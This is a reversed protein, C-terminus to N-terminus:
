RNVEIYFRYNEGLIKSIYDLSINKAAEIKRVSIVDNEIEPNLIFKVPESNNAILIDDDNLINSYIRIEDIVGHFSNEGNYDSGVSLPGSNEPIPSNYNTQNFLIGDIYIKHNFGDSSFVIHYWKNTELSFSMPEYEKPLGYVYGKIKDNEIKVGYSNYKEIIKGQTFDIIKIWFEISFKNNNLNKNESVNVFSNESFNLANGYKGLADVRNFIIGYNKNQTKDFAISGYDDFSWYAVLSSNISYNKELIEEPSYYIYYKKTENFNDFFVISANKLYNNDCYNIDFITYNIENKNEDFIRVSNNNIYKRCYYDFNMSFSIIEQSRNNSNTIIIPRFYIKESLGLSVPTINKREWFIPYGPNSLIKNLYESNKYESLKMENIYNSFKNSFLIFIFIIFVLFIFSAFMFEFWNM